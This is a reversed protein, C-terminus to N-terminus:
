NCWSKYSLMAKFGVHLHLDRARCDRISIYTNRGSLLPTPDFYGACTVILYLGVGGTSIYQVLFTLTFHTV